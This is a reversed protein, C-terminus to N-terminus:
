LGALLSLYLLGSTDKDRDRGVVEITRRDIRTGLQTTLQYGLYESRNTLQLALASGRFDGSIQGPDLEEEEGKLDYFFRQELGAQLRTSRLVALEMQLFLIADWSRRTREDRRFPTQKLLESKFRPEIQVLGLHHSYEVKNIMGTFGSRERGNRGAPGLPDFLSLTDGDADLVLDVDVERQRWTEWKFRHFTAWGRSSDYRYDAYLSNIWTNEAALPDRVAENQGRTAAARGLETRPIVWQILHDPIADEVKKLMNFLRARGWPRDVDANLLGYSTANTRGTKRMEERLQGLRVRAGPAIEVGGYVNRGWRDKKYPYDPQDDNEFREAWGNNNLDIGALFEPRDSRYRLFPEDYDPFFNRRGSGDNQNFDSIFDGNEDYGPFVEPDARGRTEVTVQPRTPDPVLSGEGSRLQDPHRDNDDNDDVYDYLLHTAEPDHDTLGGGRVPRVSTTYEDDMGFGEVFVSWPGGRWSANLMFGVAHADGVIGSIARHEDRGGAPYKRYSTNLNAEGYFDFGHFDRIEVSIGSIQNATPLGYDFIVERRNLSNKVNGEARKMIRFQPVDNGDSQRNSTAEVRYDNALVLRFRIDSINSVADEAEEPTLRLRDILLAKLDTVNAEPREVLPYKLLIEETGSATLFGERLVGGEVVPRFGIDSGLIVTDTEATVPPQSNPLERLLTTTIEVDDSFLVVGGEGDAPSDDSLRLVLLELRESLEVPNLFGKLPNGKFAEGTTSNNHSNIFNLGLTLFDTVDVEARGGMLNTFHSLAVAGGLAPNSIRSLVGTVRLRDAAYSGVLGNFGAKRFTMPTLTAFMEDGVTIAFGKGGSIDSAIILRDFWRVYRPDQLVQSGGSTVLQTQRWDYVLWGQTILNGFPDYFYNGELTSSVYRQYNDSAYNSYEWQRRGREGFLPAPLYWHGVSPDLADAYIPVGRPRYLVEEGVRSGLSFGYQAQAFRPFQLAALLLGAVVLGFLARGPM